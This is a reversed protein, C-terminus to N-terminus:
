STALVLGETVGGQQIAVGRCRGICLLANCASHLVYRAWCLSLADNATELDLLEGSHVLLGLLAHHTPDTVWPRWWAV